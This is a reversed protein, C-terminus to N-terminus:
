VKSYSVNVDLLIMTDSAAVTLQESRWAGEVLLEYIDAALFVCLLTGIWYMSDKYAYHSEEETMYTMQCSTHQMM